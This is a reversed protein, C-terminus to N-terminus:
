NVLKSAPKLAALVNAPPVAPKPPTHEQVIVGNTEFHSIRHGAGHGQFVAKRLMSLHRRTDQAFFKNVTQAYDAVVLYAADCKPCYIPEELWRHFAALPLPAAPDTGSRIAALVIHM